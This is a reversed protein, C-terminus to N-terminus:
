CKGTLLLDPLVVSSRPTPHLHVLFTVGNVQWFYLLNHEVRSTDQHLREVCPLVYFNVGNVQWFYLLNHEVRSTDQRLREVCPLVYFNVGNVQWFYLLHHEVRSTGRTYTYLVLYCLGSYFIGYMDIPQPVLDGDKVKWVQLWFM